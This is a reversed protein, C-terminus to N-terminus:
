KSLVVKATELKPLCFNIKPCEQSQFCLESILQIVLSTLIDLQGGCHQRPHLSLTWWYCTAWFASLQCFSVQVAPGMGLISWLEELEELWSLESMERSSPSQMKAVPRNGRGEEASILADEVMEWHSASAKLALESTYDGRIGSYKFSNVDTNELFVKSIRGSGLSHSWAM